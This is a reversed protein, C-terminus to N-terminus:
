KQALPLSFQTVNEFGTATPRYLIVQVGDAPGPLPLRYSDAVLIPNAAEITLLGHAPRTRDAQIIAGPQAPDPLFQGNHTPRVSLALAEPWDTQLQWFLTVDLAPQSPVTAPLPAPAPQATYGALRVTATVPENLPVSPTALPTGAGTQFAIWDASASQLTPTLEGPLESRLTTAAQWTAFVTEGTRLAEAATPSSIVLADPRIGWVQILYDLALVDQLEGFLKAQPPLPQTILHAARDFATDGPRNRSDARPLSREFRWCTAGVLALLVLPMVWGPLRRSEVQPNPFLWRGLLAAVGLLVLPYAPLIVQYWNGYRYAWCFILYLMLTSYLLTAVKRGLRAIGVLGAILFPLSLERWILDPFQNGFFARGPEFGWGLEERGQATSVFAWFWAQANPWEGAGWWEPHAAGRVYVYLYSVLPLAAAIVAGIVLRWSRVLWPADWLIVAVLPPVILAVTLMHALSLGCLFALLLVYFPSHPSREANKTEREANVQNRWLLYVYVIALTQAIASTYQETTTAYYWFFYTGAYFATLLWAAPWWGAPWRASRTILCLIRYLLWLALLAWLTSYSSLLPIPNPLPNGLQHAVGRLTHFWLWGGMTYIPYGPANSPRAQVQAYQHTILDGGVLEEPQFGNDLTALYILGTSLLLAVGAWTASQAGYLWAPWRRLLASDIAPKGRHAHGWHVDKPTEQREM